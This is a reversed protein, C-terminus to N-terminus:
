TFASPFAYPVIYPYSSMNKYTSVSLLEMNNQNHRKFCIYM